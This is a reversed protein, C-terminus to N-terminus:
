RCLGLMVTITFETDEANTANNHRDKFIGGFM